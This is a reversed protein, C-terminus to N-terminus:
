RVTVVTCPATQAVKQSVSGLLLGELAGIGRCGMVVMDAGDDRAIRVIEDAPEGFVVRIEASERLPDPLGDRAEALLAEGVSLTGDEVPQLSSADAYPLLEPPMIASVPDRMIHVLVIRDGAGALRQVAFSLAKHAHESGDLPVLITAM